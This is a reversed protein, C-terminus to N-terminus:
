VAICTCKDMTKGCKPCNKDIPQRPLCEYLKVLIPRLNEETARDDNIIEKAQDIFLRAQKRDTWDHQDFADDFMKIYGIWYGVGYEQKIIEQNLSMINNILDKALNINQKEIVSKAQVSLQDFLASSDEGGYKEMTSKLTKLSESLEELVSPWESDEQLKDINRNIERIRELVQIRTEDDSKGGTFINKVEEINSRITETELTDVDEFDDILYDLSNEVNNIELELTETDPTVQISREFTMEHMHDDLSPFSATLKIRRSEDVELTIEIDSDKPLFGPLDDGTIKVTGSHNAYISKTRPEGNYVKINLEDEKKGPRLDNISKFVKVGKAPLAQGEELNEIPILHHKRKAFEFADVCLHYPMRAKIVKTGLISISEPECPFVTGKKDTVVISFINSKGQELQVDIIDADDILEIKGSSWGEDKRDFQVFVKDPIKGKNGDRDIKIGVKAEPEACDPQYHLTLQIKSRDTERITDPIDKTSAFLAAGKSVATMPDISTNIKNSIQKKVMERLTESFTTGGIMLITTLDSGTLKNKKLLKNSIDISRQLIPKVVEEFQDIPITLDIDIDLGEDDTGIPQTTLLGYESNEKSSLNIKAEEADKKVAKRLLRKRKDDALIGDISYNEQLYPIIINDIIADDINKGGLKNDGSTGVQNIIGEKSEMIVVDFTGGGFDFVLWMGDKAQTNMGFAMSAATPESLLECYQFGALEAARQTADVSHQEFRDPMTIVISNIEEDQIYGKLSKLVEASLEESSYSKGTHACDYSIDSGMTRKFEEFANVLSEDNAAFAAIRESALENKANFGVAAIGKRNFWVCSPTTDMGFGKSKKITPEGSEMRTIASNTTGLDIGYDIKTRGM